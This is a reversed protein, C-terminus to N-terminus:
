SVKEKRRCIPLYACNGQCVPHTEKETRDDCEVVDRAIQNIKDIVSPEIKTFEVGVKFGTPTKLVHVAKGEAYIKQMGTPTFVITFLFRTPLPAKTELSMGGASLENVTVPIPDQILPPSLYMMVEERIAHIVPFRRFKRRERKTM